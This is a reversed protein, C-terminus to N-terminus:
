FMSNGNRNSTLALPANLFVIDMGTLMNVNQSERRSSKPSQM